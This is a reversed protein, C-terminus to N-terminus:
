LDDYVFEPLTNLQFSSPNWRNPCNTFIEFFGGDPYKIKRESITTTENNLKWHNTDKDYDINSYVRMVINGYARIHIKILSKRDVLYQFIQQTPRFIPLSMPFSLKNPRIKLALRTDIDLMRVIYEYMDFPLTRWIDVDLTENEIVYRIIKM